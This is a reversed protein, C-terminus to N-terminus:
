VITIVITVKLISNLVSFSSSVSFKPMSLHVLKKYSSSLQRLIDQFDNNRMSRIFEDLYHRQEPVVIVMSFDDGRYPLEIWLGSFGNRLKISSTRFSNLNKMMPVNKILKDTTEFPEAKVESFGYKWEGNFFITNALLMRVPRNLDPKFINRIYNNTANSVWNNIAFSSEDPKNFNVSM